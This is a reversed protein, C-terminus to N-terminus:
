GPSGVEAAAQRGSQLCLPMGGGPHASGSALFLGPVKPVRNAPRRFASFTTNSAAGYLAGRSGPFREALGAPSRTWVFTDGQGALGAGHLRALAVREVEEWVAAARPGAAPEAPANVMVFVPEDGPWGARGHCAEQACLYVTPEGPPRDRDFIDAFEEVYPRGPFLVTHAVRPLGGRRARLIGTWGSMSRPEDMAVGTRVDPPLLGGLLAGVDANVVVVDADLAGTATDVGVVRGGEVRVRTVPCGCTIEVGSREAVRVLARVLAYMGGVVGFGGGALELHAICNLTAPAARLDSGNYTAYRGLLDRLHPDRVRSRIASDMTRLSDIDAVLGFARVGLRLIGSVTPAPGLVFNPAAADWIRRGYALFGALDREADAGFTTAVSALTAEPRHHVDLTAGDPWRYRFAPTPARLELESALSSGGTRLVADLVDPMTLVSPGTDVEVGDLVAFGAKGGPEPAAELVRVAWGRARLEIAAALGGLGAGVVVARAGSTPGKAVASGSSAGPAGM